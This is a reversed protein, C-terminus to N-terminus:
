RARGIRAVDALHPLAFRHVRWYRGVERVAGQLLPVRKKDKM